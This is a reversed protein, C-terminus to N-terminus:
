EPAPPAVCLARQAWSGVPFVVSRGGNLLAQSALRHLQRFVRLIALEHIRRDRSRCAVSPRLTRRRTYTKPSDFASQRRVNRRGLVSVGRKQRWALAADEASRVASILRESWEALPWREEPNAARRPAVVKLEVTEPMAGGERFFERPREIVMSKGFLHASWSSVGPWDAVREVLDDVSPNVLVYVGKALVDEDEVLWTASAQEVSWLNEWRRWRVNLAKAMM